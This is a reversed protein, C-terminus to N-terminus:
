LYKVRWFRVRQSKESVEIKSVITTMNGFRDALAKLMNDLVAGCSGYPHFLHSMARATALYRSNKWAEAKKAFYLPTYMQSYSSLSRRSPSPHTVTIDALIPPFRQIYYDFGNKWHRLHRIWPSSWPKPTSTNFQYNIMFQDVYQLWSICSNQNEAIGNEVLEASSCITVLIM